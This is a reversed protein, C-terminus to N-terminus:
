GAGKPFLYCREAALRSEERVAGLEEPSPEPLVSVAESVQIPWAFCARVEEPTVGPHVSAAYMESRPDFRFIGLPTVLTQPGTGPKYGLRRRDEGGGLYGPSTIYDVREPYSRRDASASVLVLGRGLSALETGGGSGPLRVMPRHYDGIVTTNVNGFRDVIPAELLTVDVRGAGLWMYLSELCGACMPAGEAAVLDSPSTPTVPTLHDEVIGNEYVVIMGPAHLRRAIRAMLMPWHFGVFVVAADPICRAGTLLFREFRSASV